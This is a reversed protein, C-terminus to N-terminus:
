QDPFEVSVFTGSLRKMINDATDAINIEFTYIYDDFDDPEIKDVPVSSVLTDETVHESYGSVDLVTNIENIAEMTTCTQFSLQTVTM